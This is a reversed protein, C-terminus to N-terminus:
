PGCAEPSSPSPVLGHLSAVFRVISGGRARNRHGRNFEVHGNGLCDSRRELPKADAYYPSPRRGRFNAVRYFLSRGGAAKPSCANIVRDFALLEAGYFATAARDYEVEHLPQFAQGWGVESGANSRTVSVLGPSRTWSHATAVLAISGAIIRIGCSHPLRM